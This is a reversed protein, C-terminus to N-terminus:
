REPVGILLSRKTDEAEETRETARLVNDVVERAVVEGRRGRREEADRGSELSVGAGEMLDDMREVSVASVGVFGPFRLPALATTPLGPSLGLDEAAETRDCADVTRLTWRGTLVRETVEDNCGDDLLEKDLGLECNDLVLSPDVVKLDALDSIRDSACDDLLLEVVGELLLVTEITDFVDVALTLVAFVEAPIEESDVGGLDIALPRLDETPDLVDVKDTFSLRGRVDDDVSSLVGEGVDVLLGGDVVDTREVTEVV